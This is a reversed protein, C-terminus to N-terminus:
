GLWKWGWRNFFRAASVFFWLVHRGGKRSANGGHHIITLERHEMVAGYQAMRMALDFDEFYMFYREDFFGTKKIIKTNVIM